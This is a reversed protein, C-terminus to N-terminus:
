RPSEITCYRCKNAFLEAIFTSAHNLERETSWVGAGVCEHRSATPIYIFFHKSVIERFRQRVEVELVIAKVSPLWTEM